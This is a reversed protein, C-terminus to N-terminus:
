EEKQNNAKEMPFYGMCSSCIFPGDPLEPHLADVWFEWKCEPTACAVQVACKTELMDKPTPHLAEM